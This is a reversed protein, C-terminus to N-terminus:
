EHASIQGDDGLVFYTGNTEGGADRGGDGQKAELTGVTGEEGGSIQARYHFEGIKTVKATWGGAVTFTGPGQKAGGEWSHIHGDLTLVIFMDNDDLGDVHGNTTELSDFPQGDATIKAVYHTDGLKYIKATSGDVLTETRILTGKTAPTTASASAATNSAPSSESGASSGSSGPPSSQTSPAASSAASSPATSAAASSGSASPGCATALFAAASGVVAAAFAHRRNM